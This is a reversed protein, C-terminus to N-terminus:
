PKLRQSIINWDLNSPPNLFNKYAMAMQKAAEEYPIRGTLTGLGPCAVTNIKQPNTLNHQRVALLMAWMANYVNDTGEISMPVRMTPTHAVYPHHPNGTQVLFCTGVPQEGLYDRLIITQVNAMLRPGFFDALALDIGGDMMGFSNAPSVVCDFSPLLQFYEQVIEVNTLDKFAERWATCLDPIPDVLLLKMIKNINTL